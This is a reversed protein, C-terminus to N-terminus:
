QKKNAYRSKLFIKLAGRDKRIELKENEFILGDELGVVDDAFDNVALRQSVFTAELENYERLLEGHRAVFAELEVACRTTRGIVALLDKHKKEDLLNKM